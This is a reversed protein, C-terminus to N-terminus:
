ATVTANKIALDVRNMGWVAGSHSQAAVVSYSAVARHFEELAAALVVRALPAGICKHPGVSFAVHRNVARTFVAIDPQDYEAADHNAAAILCHVTDGKAIRVGEVETDATATRSPMAPAGMRLFEEVIAPIEEPHTRLYEQAEPHEGLYALSQSLVSQTTDLGAIMLLRLLAVLKNEPIPAGDDLTSDIIVSTMDETAKVGSRREAVRDRVYQAIQNGADLKAAAREEQTANAPGNLQLEALHELMERDKLPWDLMGLFMSSALPRAYEAVVECSGREGFGAILSRAVDRITDQMQQVRRPSFLPILLRRYQRHEDGDMEIPVHLERDVEVLTVGKRPQASSFRAADSLVQRVGAHSTIVWHGGNHDTWVVPGLRRWSEAKELAQEISDGSFANFDVVLDAPVHDPRM